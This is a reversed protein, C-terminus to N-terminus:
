AHRLQFTKARRASLCSTGGELSRCTGPTRIFNDRESLLAVYYCNSIPLRFVAALFRYGSYACRKSPCALQWTCQPWIAKSEACDLLPCSCEVTAPLSGLGHRISPVALFSCEGELRGAMSRGNWKGPLITRQCRSSCRKLLYRPSQRLRERTHRHLEM